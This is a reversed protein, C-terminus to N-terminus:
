YHRVLWLFESSDQQQGPTFYSPRSAQLVETPALSMRKSYLLLAFLNQLKGLIINSNTDTPPKYSIVEHCFQRTMVLAQLVSNMYCTNGLNTLGVKGNNILCFNQIEERSEEEWLSNKLITNVVDMRPEVPLCKEVTDYIPHSPFRMMLAKTCDVLSQVTKRASDTPERSLRMLVDKIDKIVRHFLVPTSQKSLLLFTLAISHQRAMPITLRRITIKLCDEAVRNLVTYKQREELGNIFASIWLSLNDDKLWQSLWTCLTTVARGLNDDDLSHIIIQAAQAMAEPEILKLVNVLAAGPLSNRDLSAIIRYLTQLCKHILRERSVSGQARDVIAKIRSQIKLSSDKFEGVKNPQDPMQFEALCTVIAECFNMNSTLEPLYVKHKDDIVEVIKALLSIDNGATNKLFLTYNHRHRNVEFPNNKLRTSFYVLLNPIEYVNTISRGVIMNVIEMVDGLDIDKRIEEDLQRLNTWGQRVEDPTGSVIQRLCETIDLGSPDCEM